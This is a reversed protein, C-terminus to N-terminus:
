CVACRRLADDITSNGRGCPHVVSILWCMLVLRIYLLHLSTVGQLNPIDDMLFNQVRM